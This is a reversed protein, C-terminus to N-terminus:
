RSHHARNEAHTAISSDHLAVMVGIGPFNETQVASRTGSLGEAGPFTETGVLVIDVRRNRRRGDATANTAMPRKDAYGAISCRADDVGADDLCDLVAAARAASLEWNSRFRLSRVPISDTHGEIRVPFPLDNIAQGLSRLDLKSESKLQESGLDFFGADQLRVVLDMEEQEVVIRQDRIANQLRSRLLDRIHRLEAGTPQHSVAINTPMIAMGSGSAAGSQGQAPLPPGSWLTVARVSETFRGMKETDVQSVAFMVVFFAFLLTIFDAYSVLWREHNAHEAHKKRRAM